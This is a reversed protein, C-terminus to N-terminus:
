RGDEARRDDGRDEIEDQGIGEGDGDGEGDGAGDTVVLTYGHSLPVHQVRELPGLGYRVTLPGPQFRGAGTGRFTAVLGLRAGPDVRVNRAPAHQIGRAYATGVMARPIEGGQVVDVSLVDLREEGAARRNVDGEMSVSEVLLPLRSTNVVAFGATVVTEPAVDVFHSVAALRFPAALQWRVEQGAVLCALAIAVALWFAGSPRRSLTGEM